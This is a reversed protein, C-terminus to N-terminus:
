VYASNHEIQLWGRDRSDCMHGGRFKQHNLEPLKYVRLALERWRNKQAVLGWMSVNM